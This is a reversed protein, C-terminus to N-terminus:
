FTNTHHALRGQIKTVSQPNPQPTPTPKPQPEDVAERVIRVENTKITIHVGLAKSLADVPLYFTGNTEIVSAEIPRGNVYVKVPPQEADSAVLVDGVILSAILWGLNTMGLKRPIEFKRRFLIGSIGRLSPIVSISQHQRRNTKM